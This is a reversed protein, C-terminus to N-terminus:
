WAVRKGIAVTGPGVQIDPSMRSMRHGLAMLAGGAFAVGLGAGGLKSNTATAEGFEPFEGNKNNLFGYLAVGMGGIFMGAGTVTLARGSPSAGSMAPPPAQPGIQAAAQARLSPRPESAVARPTSANQAFASTGLTMVLSAIVFTTRIRTM